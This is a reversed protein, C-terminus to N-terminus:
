SAAGIGSPDAEEEGDADDAQAFEEPFWKRLAADFAEVVPSIIADFSDADDLAEEAKEPTWPQPHLKLKRRAGELGAATLRAADYFGIRGSGVMMALESVHKGTWKEALSLATHTYRLIYTTDGITMEVDLRPDSM